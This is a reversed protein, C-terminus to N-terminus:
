RVSNGSSVIIVIRDRDHVVSYVEIKKLKRRFYFSRRKWFRCKMNHKRMPSLSFAYILAPSNLQTM